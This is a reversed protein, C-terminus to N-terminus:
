CGLLYLTASSCLYILVNDIAQRPQTSRYFMNKAVGRIVVTKAGQTPGDPWVAKAPPSKVSCAEFPLYGM